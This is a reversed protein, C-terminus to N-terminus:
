GAAHSALMLDGRDEIAFGQSALLELMPVNDPSVEAVLSAVREDRAVQVASRVLQAGIGHRQWADAVVLTLHRDDSAPIRSVRAM